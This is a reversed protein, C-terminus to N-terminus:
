SWPHEFDWEELTPTLICAMMETRERKERSGQNTAKVGPLGLEM